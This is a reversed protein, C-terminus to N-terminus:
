AEAFDGGHFGADQDVEAACPVGRQLADEATGVAFGGARQGGFEWKLIQTGGAREGGFRDDGIGAEPRGFQWVHITGVDFGMAVSFEDGLIM